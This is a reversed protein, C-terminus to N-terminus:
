FKEFIEFIEFNEFHKGAGMIYERTSTTYLRILTREFPKFRIKKRIFFKVRFIGYRSWTVFVLTM